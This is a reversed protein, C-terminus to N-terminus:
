KDDEEPLLCDKIGELFKSISSLDGKNIWDIINLEINLENM